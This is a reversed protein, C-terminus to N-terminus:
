KKSIKGVAKLKEKALNYDPQIELAKKYDAKAEKQKSLELYLDGRNTLIQASKPESSLAKEYADLAEKQLNMERLFSAKLNYAISWNQDLAILTEVTKLAEEIQNNEAQATAKNVYFWKNNKDLKIAEDFKKIAEVYESDKVYRKGLFNNIDANNPFSKDMELALVLVKKDDKERIAQSVQKNLDQINAPFTKIRATLAENEKKIEQLYANDFDSVAPKIEQAFIQIAPFLLLLILIKRIM